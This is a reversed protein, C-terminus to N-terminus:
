GGSLAQLVFVTEDDAVVDSLTIRDRILSEGIFINVHQRLAGREDLLYEAIRPYRRDLEHIVEAVTEGPVVLEDLDPFLTKLHSTFQVQPM